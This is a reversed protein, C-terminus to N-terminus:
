SPQKKERPEIGRGLVTTKGIKFGAMAVAGAIIGIAIKEQLTKGSGLGLLSGAIGFALALTPLARQAFHRSFAGRFTLRLITVAAFIASTLLGNTGTIVDM